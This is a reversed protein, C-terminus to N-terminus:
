DPRPESARPVWLLRPRLVLRVPGRLLDRRRQHHRVWLGGRCLLLGRRLGASVGARRVIPRGTFTQASGGGASLIKERGVCQGVADDLDPRRWGLRSVSVLM